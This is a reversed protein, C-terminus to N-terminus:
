GINEQLEKVITKYEDQSVKKEIKTVNEYVASLVKQALLEDFERQVTEQNQMLRDTIDDYNIGPMNGFQAFQQIAKARVSARIEDGDVKLDNQKSVKNKILTWKLNKAFKDYEADIDAETLKENTVRLWRKLFEDPLTMENKEILADMIMRQTINRGQQTYFEELQEHMLKRASEESNVDSDPGFATTFFEEDYQAPVLRKITAITAKFTSNVDEPADKLFYKKVYDEKSDKELQYINIDFDFGIRQDLVAKQYEDPMREPMVTIEASYPDRGNVDGTENIELSLIDKEEVPEDVEEQKGFRKLISEMEEDVVTDDIEVSYDDYSDSASAGELEFEPAIGLDFIFTFDDAAKLDFDMPQQEASTIPSGLIDIENDTIYDGLSKQLKENIVDALVSKGYMKKIASLPTKGKRFGKLHAKGQYSRLQKELEDQYDNKEITLTLQSQLHGTDVLEAKM